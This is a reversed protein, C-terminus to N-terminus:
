AVRGSRFKKANIISFGKANKRHTIYAPKDLMAKNRIVQDVNNSLYMTQQFSKGQIHQKIFGYWKGKEHPEKSNVKFYETASEPHEKGDKWYTSDLQYVVALSNNKTVNLRMSVVPKYDADTYAKRVLSQNPDILIADCNRCTKASPANHTNCSLCLTSKFYHECRGAETEGVCRVAFESNTAGCSPCDITEHKSKARSAVAKEIIPNDYIDGMAEFTDTYDLILANTKTIGADIQDSKLIRLVRGILQVLLTMSGIRRMIVCTDWYPVNVGTTLCGIQLMYKIEGSKARDLLSMRQKTSTSDTIIGWTGAPLFEAVQDCHKKSACTILVGLRDRTREVVEETIIQTLKKDKTIKRSMAALEKATYDGQSEKDTKFEGLDYHHADDGFGFVPPVLYDRQILSYTGVESLKNRWFEGEISTKNRFPSGTYGIIRLKPNTELLHTIIVAYQSYKTRNNEDKNTIYDFGSLADERCLIVDQWDVMHCEDILLVAYKETFKTTLARYITGETAFVAPYYTSSQNLSASFISCKGGILRFDDSNQKILEGQRALCLARGGKDTVHKMMFAINITKGAGVSHDHYAPKDSEKCHAITLDHASQQYDRMAIM